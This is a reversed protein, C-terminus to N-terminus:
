KVVDGTAAYYHHYTHYLDDICHTCLRCKIGGIATQSWSEVKITVCRSAEIVSIFKVACNLKWVESQDPDHITYVHM